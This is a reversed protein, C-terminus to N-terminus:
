EDAETGEVVEGEEGVLSAAQVSKHCFGTQVMEEQVQCFVFMVGINAFFCSAVCSCGCIGIGSQQGRRWIEESGFLSPGTENLRM